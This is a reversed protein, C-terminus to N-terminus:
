PKKTAVFINNFSLGLKKINEPLLISDDYKLLQKDFGKIRSNEIDLLLACGFLESQKFIDMFVGGKNKILKLIINIFLKILLKRNKILVRNNYVNSLTFFCEQNLILLTKQHSSCPDFRHGGAQLASARGASSLEGELRKTVFILISFILHFTLM